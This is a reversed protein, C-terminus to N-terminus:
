LKIVRKLRPVLLAAAAIKVADGPLFPFVCTSLAALAPTGSQVCYWATGGLDCVVLGAVMALARFVAASRRDATRTTIWAIVLVVLPGTMLYGGTPGLLVGLGGRMGSFVPLGVIGLLLHLLSATAAVRPRLLGGVTFLGLTWLSIPVATFPLPVAIVACVALVAAFLATLVMSIVSKKAQM